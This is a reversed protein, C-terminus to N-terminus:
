SYYANSRNASQRYFTRYSGNQTHKLLEMQLCLHLKMMKPPQVVYFDRISKALSNYIANNGEIADVKTWLKEINGNPDLKYLWVDTDNINNAEINIRQNFPIIM